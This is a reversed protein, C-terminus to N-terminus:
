FGGLYAMQRGTYKATARAFERGDVELVPSVTLELNGGGNGGGYYANNTTISQAPVLDGSPRLAIQTARLLQDASLELAQEAKPTAQQIGLAMGAPIMQGIEDRFM